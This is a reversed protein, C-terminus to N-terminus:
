SQHTQMKCVQIDNWNVWRKHLKARNVRFRHLTAKFCDCFDNVLKEIADSESTCDSNDGLLNRADYKEYVPLSVGVVSLIEDKSSTLGFKNTM